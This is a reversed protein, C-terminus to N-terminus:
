SKDDKFRKGEGWGTLKVKDTQGIQEKRDTRLVSM